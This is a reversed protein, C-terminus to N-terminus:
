SQLSMVLLYVATPILSAIVHALPLTYMPQRNVLSFRYNISHWILGAILGNVFPVLGVAVFYNSRDAIQDAEHTFYLASIGFTFALQVSVALLKVGKSRDMSVLGQYFSRM